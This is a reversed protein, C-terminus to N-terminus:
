SMPEQFVMAIEKGRLRRLRTASAGNLEEGKWQISGRLEVDQLLGLAALATITKGSGSEGVLAVREGKDISLNLGDVAWVPRTGSVEANPEAVPSAVALGTGSAHFRISIERFQLLSAM